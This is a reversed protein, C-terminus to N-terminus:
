PINHLRLTRLEFGARGNVDVPDPAVAKLERLRLKEWIYPLVFNYREHNNHCNFFGIM